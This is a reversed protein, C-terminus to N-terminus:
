VSNGVSTLINHVQGGLFILSVMSAISFVILAMILILCGLVIGSIPHAVSTGYERAWDAESRFLYFLGELLGIFGPLGTWCFLLYLLGQGTQGLYFKHIGLGGLFIAL